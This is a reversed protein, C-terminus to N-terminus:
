TYERYTYGCRTCRIFQTSSEDAGRTQVQWVYGMNNGCKPCEIPITTETSLDEDKDIVAVMQKPTHHIKKLEMKGNACMEKSNYGCKRCHLVVVAQSGTEVTKTILISGCNPCFDMKGGKITPAL